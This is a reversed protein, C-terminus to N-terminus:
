CTRPHHLKCLPSTVLTLVYTSSTASLQIIKQIKGSVTGKKIKCTNKRRKLKSEFNGNGKQTKVTIKSIKTKLVLPRSSFFLFSCFNKFFTFGTASNKPFDVSGRFLEQEEMGVVLSSKSARYLLRRVLIHTYEFYAFIQECVHIDIM